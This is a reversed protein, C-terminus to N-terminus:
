RSSHKEIERGVMGKVMCVLNKNVRIAGIVAVASLKKIKKKNKLSFLDQSKM